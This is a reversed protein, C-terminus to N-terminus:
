PVGYLVSVHGLDCPEVSDYDLEKETIMRRRVEM